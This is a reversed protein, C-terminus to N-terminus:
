KELAIIAGYFYIGGVPVSLTYTGAETVKFEFRRPSNYVSTLGTAIEEGEEDTIVFSRVLDSGSTSAVFIVVTAPRNLVFHVASNKAQPQVTARVNFEIGSNTSKKAEAKLYDALIVGTNNSLDVGSLNLLKSADKSMDIAEGNHYTTLLDNYITIDLDPSQNVKVKIDAFPRSNGEYSGLYEVNATQEGTILLSVGEIKFLEPSYNVVEEGVNVHRTLKFQWKSYDPNSASAVFTTDDKSVKEIKKVPNIVNLIVFTTVRNKYTKGDITLDPGDYTIRVPYSGIKTYDINHSFNADSFEMYTISSEESTITKGEGITNTVLKYDLKDRSFKFTDDVYQNRIFTDTGTYTAKIAAIYKGGVPLSDYISPLVQVNYKVNSLVNGERYAVMIDYSGIATSDFASSDVSYNTIEAEKSNWVGDVMKRYNAKVKLGESTFEDGIYFTKKVEDTNISISSFSFGGSTNEDKQFNYDADVGGGSCSLLSAGLLLAGLVSFLRKLKM